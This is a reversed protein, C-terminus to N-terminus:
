SGNPRRVAAAEPAPADRRPEGTPQVEAGACPRGAAHAELPGARREPWRDFRLVKGAPTEAAVCYAYGCAALRRGLSADAALPAVAPCASDELAPDEGPALPEASLQLHDVAVFLRGAVADQDAVRHWGGRGPPWGTDMLHSAAAEGGVVGRTESPRGALVWRGAPASRPGEAAKVYFAFVTVQPLGALYDGPRLQPAVAAALAPMGPSWGTERGFWEQVGPRTAWWACAATVSAVAAVAAGSRLLRRRPLRALGSECLAAAGAGGLVAAPLLLYHTLRPTTQVPHAVLVLGVGCATAAALLGRGGSGLRPSAAGIVIAAVLAAQALVPTAAHWRLWPVVTHAALFRASWPGRAWKRVFENDVIAGAGSEVVAPVYLIAALAVGAGAWGAARLAFRCAARLGRERWHLAVTWCVAIAAPFAMVPVAFLGLAIAGAFGAWLRRNEPRRAVERGCLMALAFCLAVISYGRANSAYEVFLPSTALLATAFAAALPGHERRAFRWTAALTACAALFAPMRLAAPEWGALQHAAWVLLSHLVHNNPRSYDSWAHWFSRSSYELVTFAEDGRMPLSLNRAAMLVGVAAAAAAMVAAPREALALSRGPAVPPAALWRGARRRAAVALVALLAAAVAAEGAIRAPGAGSVRQLSGVSGDRALQHVIGAADMQSVVALAAALLAAAVGALGVARALFEERRLLAPSAPGDRGRRAPDRTM